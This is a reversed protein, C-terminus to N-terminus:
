YHGNGRTTGRHHVHRAEPVRVPLPRTYQTSVKKNKEKYYRDLIKMRDSENKKEFEEITIPPHLPLM